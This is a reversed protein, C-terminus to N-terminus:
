GHHDEGVQQEARSARVDATRVLGELYALRFPGLRELLGLSRDLWSSGGNAARGVRALSLDILLAPTSAGAGLDVAPLTNDRKLDDESANGGPMLFGLLYRSDPSQHRSRPLSRIGLRVKGHHAAALYAM